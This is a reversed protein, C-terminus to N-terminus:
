VHVTAIVGGCQLLAPLGEPVLLLDIASGVTSGILAKIGERHERIWRSAQVHTMHAVVHDGIDDGPHPSHLTKCNEM